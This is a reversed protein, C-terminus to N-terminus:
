VPFLGFCRAPQETHYELSYELQHRALGIKALEGIPTTKATSGPSLTEPCSLHGVKWANGKYSYSLRLGADCSMCGTEPICGTPCFLYYTILGGKLARRATM